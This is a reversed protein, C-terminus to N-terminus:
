FFHCPGLFSVLLCFISGQDVSSSSAPCPPFPFTPSSFMGYVFMSDEFTVASHFQRPLPMDGKTEVLSWKLKSFSFRWLENSYSDTYGGFIYMEDSYVVATHGWRSAPWNKPTSPVLFWSNKTFDFYWLDEMQKGDSIGGFVWMCNQYVVACHSHRGPPQKKGVPDVLTWNQRAFDFSLLDNFFTQKPKAGFGGYIYRIETLLHKLFISDHSVHM